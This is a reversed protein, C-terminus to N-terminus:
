VLRRILLRLGWRTWMAKICFPAVFALQVVGGYGSISKVIRQAIRNGVREGLRVKRSYCFGPFNKLIVNLGYQWASPM